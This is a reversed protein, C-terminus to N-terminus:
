GSPESRGSSEAAYSQGRCYTRVVPGSDGLLLEHPDDSATDPLQVVTLDARRGAALGGIESGLGLSKAGNATGLRLIDSASVAGYHRYLYRMEELVNLDPNSARSDTGLAVNVGASLMEALPYEEHGFYAHTRPCFVVSMQERRAGLFEIESRDLYNGHVILARHSASLIQLYDLPKTGRSIASPHWADLRELLKVFPGTGARLLELEERSEALHMAVPVRAESSVQAARQLLLPNVTYPAHPSIGAHWGANASTAIHTRSQGILPEIGDASLGILELFVTTDISSSRFAQEPWGSTAIEALTTSGCYLSETLGQEVASAREQAIDASASERDRRHGVVAAIWDTFPMRSRGIPASLDSFELHTHANILGPLIAVNGLDIPSRGSTNEGVAVIRDGSVTLIGDAVAPADVPFLYHAKLAFMATAQSM